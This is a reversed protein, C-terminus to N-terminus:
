VASHLILIYYTKIKSIFFSRFDNHNNTSIKFLIGSVIFFLPMHFSYIWHIFSDAGQLHHGLIVFIIGICKIADIYYLRENNNISNM